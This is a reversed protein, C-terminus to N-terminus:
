IMKLKPRAAPEELAALRAEIAAISDELKERAQIHGIRNFEMGTILLWIAERVADGSGQTYAVPLNRDPNARADAMSKKIETYLKNAYENALVVHERRTLRAGTEAKARVSILMRESDERVFDNPDDTM